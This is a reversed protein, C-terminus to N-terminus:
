KFSKRKKSINPRRLPVLKLKPKRQTKPENNLPHVSLQSDISKSQTASIIEVSPTFEALPADTIPDSVTMETDETESAAAPKDATKRRARARASRAIAADVDHRLFEFALRTSKDLGSAYNELDGDLYLNLAIRMAAASTRDTAFVSDIRDIFRKYAKASVPLLQATKNKM